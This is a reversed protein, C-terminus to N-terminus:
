ATAEISSPGSNEAQWRERLKGPVRPFQDVIDHDSEGIIRVSVACSVPDSECAVRVFGEALVTM